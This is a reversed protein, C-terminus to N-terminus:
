LNYTQKFQKDLRPKVKTFQLTHLFNGMEKLNELKTFYLNKIINKHNGSNGGHRNNHGM